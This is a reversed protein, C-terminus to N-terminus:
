SRLEKNKKLISLGHLISDCINNSIENVPKNNERHLKIDIPNMNEWNGAIISKVNCIRLIRQLRGGGITYKKQIERYPMGNQVDNCINQVDTINLKTGGKHTLTALIYKNDM